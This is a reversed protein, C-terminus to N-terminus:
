KLDDKSSLVVDYVYTTQYGSTAICVSVKVSDGPNKGVLASKLEDMSSVDKGDVATIVDGRQVGAKYAGSESYVSAVYVGTPMNYQLAYAQTVDVGSIGLYATNESAAGSQQTGNENKATEGNMLLAIVEKAQTIPIAYGMGEVKTAAYKASVIGIVEGKMNLLAGGSNGPNIAAETQILKNTIIQGDDGELQVERNLASIVGTTVSQGYGLANGIVVAGSGVKINDSDGLTAVKITEMTSDSIDSKKVKVVALDTSPDTGLLEAAVAADDSFTITLSSAGSVVHNNTAIYVYDDDEDIIVGSGAGPTEYTGYQGFFSRYETVTVTTVAVISPMVNEALESVDDIATATSVATSEIEKSSATQKNEKNSEALEKELSIEKKTDTDLAKGTLYGAGEFGAGAVLGFTLGLAIAKVFKKGLTNDKKERPAKPEKEYPNSGGSYQSGYNNGYNNNNQYDNNFYDGMIFHGGNKIKRLDNYFANTYM